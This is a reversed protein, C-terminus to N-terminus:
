PERVSPAAGHLILDALARGGEFPTGVNDIMADPALTAFDMAARDLRREADGDSSRGRSALRAARIKRPADIWVVRCAAYRRRLEPVTGRSVNCVVTRGAAIDRDIAAPVGYRLGHADWWFAFAGEQLAAEFAERSLSDHDEGAGAARTIVRRAFVVTPVERVLKRAIDILTDKGAGSPGIVAVLTGPGRASM